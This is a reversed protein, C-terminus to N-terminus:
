TSDFLTAPEVCGTTGMGDIGAKHGYGVLVWLSQNRMLQGHLGVLLM